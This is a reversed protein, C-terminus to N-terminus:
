CAIQEGSGLCPHSLNAFPFDCTECAGDTRIPPPSEPKHGTHIWAVWANGHLALLGNIM